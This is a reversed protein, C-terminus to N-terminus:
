TFLRVGLTHLTNIVPLFPLIVKAKRIAQKLEEVKADNDIPSTPSQPEGSDSTNQLM